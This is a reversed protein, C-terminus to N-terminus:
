QTYTTPMAVLNSMDHDTPANKTTVDNRLRNFASMFCLGISKILMIYRVINTVDFILQM